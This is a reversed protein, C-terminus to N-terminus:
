WGPAAPRAHNAELWARWTARDEAEVHPADEVAPMTPLRSAPRRPPAAATAALNGARRASRGPRRCAYVRRRAAPRGDGRFGATRTPASRMTPGPPRAPAERRARRM